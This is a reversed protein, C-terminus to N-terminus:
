DVRSLRPRSVYAICLEIICLLGQGSSVRKYRVFANTEITVRWQIARTLIATQRTKASETQLLEILM